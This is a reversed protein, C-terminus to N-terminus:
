TNSRVNIPHISYTKVHRDGHINASVKRGHHLTFVASAGNVESDFHHAKRGNEGHDLSCTSHDSLLTRSGQPTECSKVRNLKEGLVEIKDATALTAFDIKVRRCSVVDHAKCDSIWSTDENEILTLIKQFASIM